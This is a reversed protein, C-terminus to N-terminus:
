NTLQISRMEGGSGVPSFRFEKVRDTVGRLEVTNYVWIDPSDAVILRTAEEYLPRRQEQGITVRAKRLLEDVKPNKYWASAKWTGHFQSDYMQGVWNEPDVFYTSVWHVWLDPTSEPKSTNTTINAWTDSVIKLNIGIQALDSQLLQAAQNTQELQSQIHIQIPRNIPAGEAQREPAEFVTRVRGRFHFVKGNDKVEIGTAEIVGNALSVTVDENSVVTGAKFDVFASRFKVDQGSDTRVRVDQRLEMQEKQTDLFGTAAELRAAGGQDDTVIRAKLQKLEVFNPRRVDQLAASATVEYPRSDNRFGTLKPMEMTVQTGSVSVPGVSLGEIQRFPNFLAFFGIGLAGVVAGVPIAVKYFRVWRSHRRARAFARSRPPPMGGPRAPM